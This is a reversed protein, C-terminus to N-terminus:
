SRRELAAPDDAQNSDDHSHSSPPDDQHKAFILVDWGPVIERQARQDWVRHEFDPPGFVREANARQQPSRFGVFHVAPAVGALLLDLPTPGNGARRCRDRQCARDDCDGGMPCITM